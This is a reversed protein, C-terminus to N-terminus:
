RHEGDHRSDASNVPTEQETSLFGAARDGLESAPGIFRTEGTDLVVVQDAIGLAHDLHQEVILLATGAARVKGLVRYVEETVIPALGLSLEDAILLRPEAVLVRALTLMRQEGGSLSGALQHQREGLRPFLEYARDLGAKTGNRGFTARFSLVLNEEVTLSAFVSRGEPAHAIGKRALIYAPDNTVDAGEFLLRGATPSILGSCVRAVTTKGAGNPGVLAVATGAAISFSVGFLARFAGYGAEVNELRLLLEESPEDHPASSGTATATV